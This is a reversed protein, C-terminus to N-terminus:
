DEDLYMAKDIEQDLIHNFAAGAGALCGIGILSLWIRLWSRDAVPALFMGVLATLLILLVVKPKTMEFLSRLKVQISCNIIEPFVKDM